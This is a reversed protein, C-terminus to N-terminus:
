CVWTSRPTLGNVSRTYFEEMPCKGMDHLEGCGQCVFLCHDSPHGRKGCKTCTVRRWCGLDSHKKSGYHSCRDRNFGNGHIKSNHDQHGHDRDPLRPDLNASEKEVKPTVNESAELFVRRHSDIDSGGSGDSESDSGSDNAQIQIARVQKAPASPTSNTPKQRYKSSGFAAKKQRNKTRDRARLVEELDDADTLRLLTLWEALDQDELTEIYHDVHERREKASGDKIKLRARLGAVNLRYLYDLPSEDSKRRTYYYQRAVSVGLGCYLEERIWRSSRRFDLM